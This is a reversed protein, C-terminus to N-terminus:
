VVSKRDLADTLTEAQVMPASALGAMTAVAVILKRM